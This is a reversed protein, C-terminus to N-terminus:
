YARAFYAMTRAEQGCCLCRGTISRDQDLPIVRITAMTEEKIRTECDERGCWRALIFGRKEEIIKKFEEYSEAARTNEKQFALARDFLAKQITTLMEGVKAEIRGMDLATKEKNDRRVAIAQNNQVDRPGIELRLPVGRMEWESFKWGPTYESRDDLQVRYGAQQLSDKLKRAMPLVSERWNGISIPVIIVQLPAVRPPFVLGSDDGHSMVLAGILRTSVGWSTQWVYHLKQNRDEFKIDFVGAFHQGLNHSTGMQLAKGDSM